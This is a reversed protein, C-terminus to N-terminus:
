RSMKAALLSFQRFKLPNSLRDSIGAPLATIKVGVQRLNDNTCSDDASPLQLGATPVQLQATFITETATASTQNGQRDFYFLQDQYAALNNTQDWDSAQLRASLEQVIRTQATDNASLRLTEEGVPLLAVIALMGVAVIGLALTVEVLSFGRNAALHTSRKM